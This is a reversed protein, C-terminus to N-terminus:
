CPKDEESEDELVELVENMNFDPDYEIPLITGNVSQRDYWAAYAAQSQWFRLCGLRIASGPEAYCAAM